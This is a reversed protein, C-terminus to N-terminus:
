HGPYPRNKTSLSDEEDECLGSAKPAWDAEQGVYEPEKKQLYLHVRVEM